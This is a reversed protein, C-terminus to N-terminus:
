QPAPTPAPAPLFFMKFHRTPVRFVAYPKEKPTPLFPVITRVMHPLYAVHQPTHALKFYTFDEGVHAIVPQRAVLINNPTPHPFINNPRFFALGQKVWLIILGTKLVFRMKPSGFWTRGANEVKIVEHERSIYEAQTKEILKLAATKDGDTLHDFHESLVILESNLRALEPDLNANATNIQQM